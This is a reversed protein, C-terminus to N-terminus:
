KKCSVLPKLVSSVPVACPVGRCAHACRLAWGSGCGAGATKTTGLETNRAESETGTRHTPSGPPRTENGDVGRAMPKVNTRERRWTADRPSGPADSTRARVECTRVERGACRAAAAADCSWVGVGAAQRSPPPAFVCVVDYAASTAARAHARAGAGGGAHNTRPTCATCKEEKMCCEVDWVFDYGTMSCWSIRIRM